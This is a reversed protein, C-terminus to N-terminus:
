LCARHILRNLSFVCSYVLYVAGKSLQLLNIFKDDEEATYPFTPADSTLADPVIGNNELKLATMECSVQGLMSFFSRYNTWPRPPM